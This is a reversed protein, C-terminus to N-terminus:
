ASEDEDVSVAYEDGDDEGRDHEYMVRLSEIAKRTELKALARRETFHVNQHACQLLEGIQRHSLGSPYVGVIMDVIEDGVGGEQDMWWPWASDTDVDDGGDDAESFLVLQPSSM